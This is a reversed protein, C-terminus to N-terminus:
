SYTVPTILVADVLDSSVGAEDFICCVVRAGSEADAVFTQGDSHLQGYGGKSVTGSLKVKVIGANGGFIAISDVGDTNEGEIIVGYPKATPSSGLAFTSGSLVGSYGEYNRHDAAPTLPVVTTTRSIM